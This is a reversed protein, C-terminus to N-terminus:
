VKWYEQVTWALWGMRALQIAANERAETPSRAKVTMENLTTTALTVNYTSLSSKSLHYKQQVKKLAKTLKLMM